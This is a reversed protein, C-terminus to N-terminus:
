GNIIGEFKVVYGFKSFVDYFRDCDNSWYIMACAMPAGKGSVMGNILFKLRTDYLFCISSKGFIYDKWHRTNVAVPILAMVNSNYNIHSEYCKKIWDVIRTKRDKDIGYPPNVYITKYNWSEELGNKPLKFETEAGVISHQNSCPDLEITGLVDKVANTYKLPTCWEKNNSMINRGATM